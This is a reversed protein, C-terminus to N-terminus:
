AQEAFLLEYGLLRAQKKVSQLANLNCVKLAPNSNKPTDLLQELLVRYPSTSRRRSVFTLDLGDVSVVSADVARQARIAKGMM